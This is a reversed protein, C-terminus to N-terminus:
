SENTAEPRAAPPVASRGPDAAEAIRLVAREVAFVPDRSAGKVEADAQAVACIAGALSEPTWARLERRARDVQWSALGLDRVPDLGQGRAAGVKALTRLKIALAAVLPVPDSGTALAHRLLAVAEGACSTPPSPPRTRM